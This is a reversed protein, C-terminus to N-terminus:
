ICRIIQRNRYEEIINEPESVLVKEARELVLEESRYLSKM